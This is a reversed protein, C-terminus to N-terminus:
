ANKRGYKERALTAAKIFGELQWTVLVDAVASITPLSLTAEGDGKSGTLLWGDIIEKIEKITFDM